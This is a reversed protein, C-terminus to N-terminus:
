QLAPYIRALINVPNILLVVIAACVLAICCNLMLSKYDKNTVNCKIAKVLRIVGWVILACNLLLWLISLFIKM